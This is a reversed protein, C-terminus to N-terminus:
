RVFGIGRRPPPEPPAMLHRIAELIEAIARDHAGLKRELKSELEALRKGLETRDMLWERMQVFARVVFISVQIARTANLVTAAMVAGHESFACPAYSRGGRGRRKPIVFQSRLVAIEQNTLTIMFDPPFRANNRRVAQLLVRTEVGYLAALDCDLLVRHARITLIRHAIRESLDEVAVMCLFRALDYARFLGGPSTSMLTQATSSVQDPRFSTSRFSFRFDRHAGEKGEQM